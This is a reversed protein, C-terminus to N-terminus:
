KDKPPAPPRPPPAPPPPKPPPWNPPPQEPQGPTVGKEGKKELVVGARLQEVIETKFRFVITADSSPSTDGPAPELKAYYLRERGTPDPYSRSLRLIKESLQEAKKPDAVYRIVVRGQPSPGDLDYEKAIRPNRSLFGEAKIFNLQALLQFVRDKDVKLDLRKSDRDTFEWTGSDTRRIAYYVLNANLQDPKYEFSVERIQDRPIDFMTTQRINLDMRELRRWADASIQYIEKSGPKLLYATEADGPCGFKYERAAGSQLKITLALAPQDLGFAAVDPQRGMFDSTQLQLVQLVFNEVAGLEPTFGAPEEVVWGSIKVPEGGRKEEKEVRRIKMRHGSKSQFELTEVDDKRFDFVLKPLFDKRDRGLREIPASGAAAIEGVRDVRVWTIKRGEREETKGVEVVLDVTEAKPPAVVKLLYITEPADFGQEKPDAAERFEEATMNRLDSVIHEVGGQEARENCEEGNVSVIYWGRLGGVTATRERLEFVTKEYEPRLIPVKQGKEDLRTQPIPNGKDDLKPKGDPGTEFVPRLFKRSIELGRVRAPEYSVVSRSRLEPLKRLFPKAADAPGLYIEPEGAIMFYRSEPDRTSPKGFRVTLNGAVSEIAADVEPQDFGYASPTHAPDGPKIAGDRNLRRLAAIMDSVRGDDAPKAIPQEIEWYSGRVKDANRKLVIEAQGPIRISLRLLDQERADFPRPRGGGGEEESPKTILWAVLAAATLCGLIFTTKWNM